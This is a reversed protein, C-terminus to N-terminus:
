KGSFFNKVKRFGTQTGAKIKSGAKKFPETMGAVAAKKFDTLITFRPRQLDGQVVLDLEVQGKENTLSKVALDSGFQQLTNKKKLELDLNRVKAHVPINLRDEAINAESSFSASGRQIRVPLGNDYYPAYPPLPFASVTWQAQLSTQPSLFDGRGVLTMKAGAVVFWAEFSSPFKEEPTALRLGKLELKADTIETGMKVRGDTFHIIGEKVKLREVNFPKLRVEDKGRRILPVKGSLEWKGRRNTTFWIEPREMLIELQTFNKGFLIGLSRLSVKDARLLVRDPAEPHFVELKRLTVERELPHIELEAFKVDSQLVREMQAEAFQASKQYGYILLALLLVGLVALSTMWIKKGRIKEM